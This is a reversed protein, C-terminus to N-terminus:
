QALSHYWFLLVPHDATFRCKYKNSRGAIMEASICNMGHEQLFSTSLHNDDMKALHLLYMVSQQDVSVLYSVEMNKKSSVAVLNEFGSSFGHLYYTRLNWLVSLLLFHM